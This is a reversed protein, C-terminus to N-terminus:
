TVILIWIINRSVRYTARSISQSYTVQLEHLQSAVTGSVGEWCAIEHGIKKKKLNELETSRVEVNPSVVM